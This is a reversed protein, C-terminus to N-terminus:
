SRCSLCVRRGEQRKGRGGHVRHWVCDPLLFDSGSICDAGADRKWLLGSCGSGVVRMRKWDAVAVEVGNAALVELASIQAPESLAHTDMGLYLPGSTGQEHRYACIAQTIALIHNENFSCDLSSGRHGSTGFSVRQSRIGPDPKLAYYNSILRPINTLAAPDALKGARPDIAM